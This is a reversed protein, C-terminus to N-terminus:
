ADNGLHAKWGRKVLDRKDDHKNSISSVGVRQECLIPYVCFSEHTAIWNGLIFDYMANEHGIKDFWHDVFEQLSYRTLSYADAFSMRGVKALNPSYKKAQFEPLPGRPHGGMFLADWNAPLEDIAKSVREVADAAFVVDDEFFIPREWECIAADVIAKMQSLNVGFEGRPARRMNNMTFSPMPPTASIYTIREPAIGVKAFEAEMQTKRETHQPLHICYVHDFFDFGAM